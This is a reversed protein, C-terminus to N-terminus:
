RRCMPPRKLSKATTINAAAANDDATDCAQTKSRNQSISMIQTSVVGPVQWLKKEAGWFCGMGFMAVALDAGFPPEMPTGLVVHRAAVPMKEARGPLAEDKSPMRIKEAYGM